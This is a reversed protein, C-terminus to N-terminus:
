AGPHHRSHDDAPWADAPWAFHLVAAAVLAVLALAGFPIGLSIALWLTVAAAAVVAALMMLFHPLPM